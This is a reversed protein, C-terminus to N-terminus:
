HLLPLWGSLGIRVAQRNLSRSFPIPLEVAQDFNYHYFIYQAYFSLRQNFAIRLSASANYSNYAGSETLGIVGKSYGTTTRLEMRRTILGGVGTTITDAFLPTGFGELYQVGRDYGANANWSRGIQHNLQADAILRYYNAQNQVIVTSGSGFTLTTRRSFSLPRSYDLGVDIDHNVIPSRSTLNSGTAQTIAQGTGYGYGLRMVLHRTLGRNFVARAFQAKFQDSLITTYRTNWYAYMVNISSRENLGQDLQVTTNLSRSRSATLAYDIPPVVAAEMQVSSPLANIAYYPVYSLAGTASVRTRRALQAAASLSGGGNLASLQSLEPFYRGGVSGTAVLSGRQRRLAYTLNTNMSAYTGNVQYRPDAFGTTALGGGSNDPGNANIDNAGLLTWGLSLDQGPTQGGDGGFLGHYPRAGAPPGGAALQAFSPQAGACMTVVVLATVVVARSCREGPTNVRYNMRPAIM